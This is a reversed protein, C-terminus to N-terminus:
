TKYNKNNNFKKKQKQYNMITPVLFKIM